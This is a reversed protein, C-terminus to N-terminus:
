GFFFFVAIIISPSPKRVHNPNKQAELGFMLDNTPGWSIVYAMNFVQGIGESKARGISAYSRKLLLVMRKKKKAGLVLRDFKPVNIDLFLSEGAKKTYLARRRRHPHRSFFSCKTEHGFLRVQMTRCQTANPIAPVQCVGGAFYTFASLQLRSERSAVIEPNQFNAVLGFKLAVVM